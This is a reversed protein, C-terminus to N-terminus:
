NCAYLEYRVNLLKCRTTNCALIYAILIREVLLESSNHVVVSRTCSTYIAYMLARSTVSVMYRM